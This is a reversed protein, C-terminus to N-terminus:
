LLTIYITRKISDEELVYELIFTEKEQKFKSNSIKMDISKNYNKLTITIINNKFNIIVEHENNKYKFIQKSKNLYYKISELEFFIIGIKEEYLIDSAEKILKENNLVKLNLKKM